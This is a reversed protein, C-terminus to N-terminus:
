TGSATRLLPEGAGAARAAKPRARESQSITPPKLHVSGGQSPSPPTGGRRAAAREVAEVTVQLPQIADELSSGSRWSVGSDGRARGGARPPSDGVQSLGSSGRSRGRLEIQGEDGLFTTDSFQRSLTGSDGFPQEGRSPARRRAAPRPSRSARQSATEM